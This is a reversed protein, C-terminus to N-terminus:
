KKHTGTKNEWLSCHSENALFSSRWCELRKSDQVCISISKWCRYLLRHSLFQRWRYLSVVKSSEWSADRTKIGNARSSCCKRAGCAGFPFEAFKDGGMTVTALHTGNNAAARLPYENMREGVIKRRILISFLKHANAVLYLILFSRRQRYSGLKRRGHCTRRRALPGV